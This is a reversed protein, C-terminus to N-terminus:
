GRNFQFLLVWNGADKRWDEATHPSLCIWVQGDGKSVLDNKAYRTGPRWDGQPNLQFPPITVRGIERGKNTFFKLVNFEQDIRSIAEVNDQRNELASLRSDLNRFNEDVEDSTLPISKINRYTISM